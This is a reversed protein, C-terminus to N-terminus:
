RDALALNAGLGAFSAAFGRRLWTQVRTSEIVATRFLHALLGYLVFVAFTMGMFTASLILLPRLPDGAGPQIFQPLFALFFITLKPNLINLLFAKAILGAASCRVAGTEVAFASRDRWTAYALYFLYAVGAYKLGQFALASAHLVAALGLITALLHPVIGATCGLAAIVGARRGHILATSVTYIVGAGPILVVVLSTLLFELSLM